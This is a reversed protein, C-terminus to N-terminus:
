PTTEVQNARHDAEPILQVVPQHTLTTMSAQDQPRQTIGAREKRTIDQKRVGRLCCSEKQRAMEARSDALWPSFSHNLYVKGGKFQLNSCQTETLPLCLSITLSLM